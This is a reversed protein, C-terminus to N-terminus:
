NKLVTHASIIDRAASALRLPSALDEVKKGKEELEGQLKSGGM